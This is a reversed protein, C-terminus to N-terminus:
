LMGKPVELLVGGQRLSETAKCGAAVSMRADWPSAGNSKGTRLTQLFDNVILPDAGGHEGEAFPIVIERDGQERWAGRRTTWLRVSAQYAETSHDGINEMRGHTGIITYSRHGDPTYHCQEYSAQVGNALQMIMMSHDEVDIEPSLETQELPPWNKDDFGVETTRPGTRRNTVRNYVSLKGMASTRTTYSGALWHIVDIDHAGKQLLLGTTYKRESHWDKFYADGGYDIFHRCWIAEIQGIAGSDILEKMKLFVPGFRLNHGIYLKVGHKEAERIIRDCGEITIALPKEVYVSCGARIAAIAHEEHLYDPTTIFVGDLGPRKLLERYDDTVFCEKGFEAQYEERVEARSDCAAVLISGQDPQHALKVIRGRRGAGISAIKFM